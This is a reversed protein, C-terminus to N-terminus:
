NQYIIKDMELLKETFEVDSIYKPNKFFNRREFNRRKFNQLLIEKLSIKKEKNSLDKALLDGCVTKAVAYWSGTHKEVLGMKSSLPEMLYVRGIHTGNRLWNFFLRLYSNQDNLDFVDSVIDGSIIFNEINPNCELTKALSRNFPATVFGKSSIGNVCASYVALAGGLSCGTTTLNEGYITKLIGAVNAAQIYVKPLGKMFRNLLPLGGIFQWVNAQMREAFFQEELMKGSFTSGFSLIYHETELDKLLVFRMGTYEDIIAGSNSVSLDGFSKDPFKWNMTDLIKSSDMKELSFVRELNYGNLYYEEANEVYLAASVYKLIGQSKEKTLIEINSENENEREAYGQNIFFVGSIFLISIIYNFM